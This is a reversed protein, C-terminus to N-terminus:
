RGDGLRGIVLRLHALHLLNMCAKLFIGAQRLYGFLGAVPVDRKLCARLHSLGFSLHVLHHGFHGPDLFVINGGHARCAHAVSLDAPFQAHIRTKQSFTVSTGSGLILYLGSSCSLITLRDAVLFFGPLQLGPIPLAASYLILELIL